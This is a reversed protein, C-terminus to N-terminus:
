QKLKGCPTEDQWVWNLALEEYTCSKNNVIISSSNIENPMTKKSELGFLSRPVIMPGHKVMDSIFERSESYPMCVTKVRYNYKEWNWGPSKVDEWKQEDWNSWLMAQIENGNLAATMVEIEYELRKNEM